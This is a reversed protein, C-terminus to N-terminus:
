EGTEGPVAPESLTEYLPAMQHLVESIEIHQPCHAECARCGLCQSPKGGYMTAMIFAFVNNNAVAKYKLYENYLEMLAPINIKMPCSSICYRCGTCPVRPTSNLVRVAERITKMEDDSLPKLHEVTNMNDELMEMTTMGSLMVMLGELSAAFRVAWSAASADPDTAQFVKEIASGTGALLGGKVPEMIMIPKNHARAVEYLRRSQVEASDWDLYNIQLQVFEADPHRTLIADLNEPNDHYSFGYHRIKGEEKLERLFEWVGIQECKENEAGSIGHLLYFDIFDVGLRALSTEFAPRLEEKTKLMMTPLKTAIQFKERPHRKVLTERLSEESGEYVYATDFYSFGRELFADVLKKMPEYDVKDDKRPLRMFGFGLKKISTELGADAM